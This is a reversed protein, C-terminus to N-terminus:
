PKNGAQYCVISKAGRTILRDGALALSTGGKHNDVSIAERLRKGDRADFLWLSRNALVAVTSGGVVVSTFSWQGGGLSMTPDATEWLIKGTAAEVCIMMGVSPEKSGDAKKGGGRQGCAFVRGGIIAANGSSNDLPFEAIPAHGTGSPRSILLGKGAGMVALIGGEIAPTSWRGPFGKWRETGDSSAYVANYALVLDGGSQRILSPSSWTDKGGTAVSWRVGGDSLACSVLRGTSNALIAQDDVILASSHYPGIVDHYTETKQRSRAPDSLRWAERGTQADLCFAEGLSGVAVVRGGGVALTASCGWRFSTGPMSTKWRTTGTALDLCIVTDNVRSPIKCNNVLSVSAPDPWNVYLYVAGDAVVPSGQGVICANQHGYGHPLEESRWAEILPAGSALAALVASEAIAGSRSPGGRWQSWDAAPLPLFGLIGLLLGLRFRKCM